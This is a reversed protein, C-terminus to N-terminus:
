PDHPIQGHSPQQRYQERIANAASSLGHDASDYRKGKSTPQTPKPKGWKRYFDKEEETWSESGPPLPRKPGTTAAVSKPGGRNASSGTRTSQVPPARRTGMPESEVVTVSGGEDDAQPQPDANTTDETGLRSM